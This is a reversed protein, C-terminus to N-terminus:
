AKEGEQLCDPQMVRVTFYKQYSISFNPVGRKLETLRINARGIRFEVSTTLRLGLVRLWMVGDM